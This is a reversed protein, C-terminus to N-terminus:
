KEGRGTKRGNQVVKPVGFGIKQSGRGDGPVRRPGVVMGGPGEKPVGEGRKSGKADQQAGKSVGGPDPSDRGPGLQSGKPGRLVM